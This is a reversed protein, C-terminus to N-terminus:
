SRTMYFITSQVEELFSSPPSLIWLIWTREARL